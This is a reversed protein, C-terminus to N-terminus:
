GVKKQLDLGIELMETGSNLREPVIFSYKLDVGYGPTSKELYQDWASVSLVAVSLDDGLTIKVRYDELSEGLLSFVEIVVLDDNGYSRVIAFVQQGDEELIVM